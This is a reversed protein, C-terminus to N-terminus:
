STFYCSLEKPKEINDDDYWFSPARKETVFPRDPNTEVLHGLIFSRTFRIEYKM